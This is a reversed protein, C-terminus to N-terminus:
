LRRNGEDDDDDGADLLAMHDADQEHDIENESLGHHAIGHSTILMPAGCQQCVRPGAPLPKTPPAPAPEPDVLEMDELFREIASTHEADAWQLEGGDDLQLKIVADSIETLEGLRGGFETLVTADDRVRYREGVSPEVIELRYMKDFREVQWLRALLKTVGHRRDAKIAKVIEWHSVAPVRDSAIFEEPAAMGPLWFAITEGWSDVFADSHRAYALGLERCRTEIAEFIAGSKEGCRFSVCQQTQSAGEIMDLLNDWDAYGDYDEGADDAQAADALMAVKARHIRGAIQIAVAARDSM